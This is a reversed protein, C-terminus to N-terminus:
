LKFTAEVAGIAEFTEDRVSIVIKEAKVWEVGRKLYVNGTLTMIESKEVYEAREAKAEKGKQTVYVSGSADADGTVTSFVLHDSTLVTKEKLIEQAEPNKLKRTSEEKLVVGAKEFVAKVIGKLNLKKDKHSYIGENAVALKKGQAAELNGSIVMSRNIDTYFLARSGNVRTQLKGETVTLRVHGDAELKEERSFYQMRDSFLVGDSRVLRVKEPIDATNKDHDVMIKQSYIATGKKSLTINGFIETKKQAPIYKLRDSIMRYWEKQDKSSPHSLRGLNIYANLKSPGNVKGELHGYAEVVESRRFVRAYPAYLDTVVPKGDQFIQGQSVDYLHTVERNNSSWGEKAYFEWTKKGSKRGSVRTDKFEAIKEHKEETFYESERPSIFYYVVGMVVLSFIAAVLIIKWSLNEDMNQNYWSTFNKGIKSSIYTPYMLMIFTMDM